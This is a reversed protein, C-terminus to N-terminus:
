RAEISRWNGGKAIEQDTLDRAKGYDDVGPNGISANWLGGIFNKKSDKETRVLDEFYLWVIQGGVCKLRLWEDQLSANEPVKEVQEYLEPGASYQTGNIRVEFFGEGGYILYEIVQGKKIAVSKKDDKFTFDKKAILPIIKSATWYQADSLKARQSNWPNFVDKDPLECQISRSLNKDMAKRGMVQVGKQVVSFVHPWEGSWYQSKFWSKDYDAYANISVLMSFIILLIRM